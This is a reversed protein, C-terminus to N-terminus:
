GAILHGIRKKLVRLEIAEMELTWEGKGISIEGTPNWEELMERQRDPHEVGLRALLRCIVLTVLARRREGFTTAGRRQGLM